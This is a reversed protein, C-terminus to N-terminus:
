SRGIIVYPAEPAVSVWTGEPSLTIVQPEPDHELRGALIGNVNFSLVWVPAGDGRRKDKASWDAHTYDGDLVGEDVALHRFVDLGEEALGGPAGAAALLGRHFESVTGLWSRDDLVFRLGREM